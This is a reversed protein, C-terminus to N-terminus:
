AKRVGSACLVGQECPISVWDDKLLDNGTEKACLVGQECPISVWGGFVGARSRRPASCERNVHSQFPASRQADAFRRAPASCELNNVKALLVDGALEGPLFAL